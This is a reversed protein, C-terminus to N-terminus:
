LHFWTIVLYPTDVPGLDSHLMRTALLVPYGIGVMTGVGDGAEHEVEDALNSLGTPECVPRLPQPDPLQDVKQAPVAVREASGSGHHHVGCIPHVTNEHRDEGITLLNHERMLKPEAMYDRMIRPDLVAPRVEKKGTDPNVSHRKLRYITFCGSLVLVNAYFSEFSKLLCHTLFYEFVQIMTIYSQTRNEVKTEGCVGSLKPDKELARRGECQMRSAQTLQVDRCVDPLQISNEEKKPIWLAPQHGSNISELPTSPMSDNGSYYSAVSYGNGPGAGWLSLGQIHASTQAIETNCSSGSHSYEFSGDAFSDGDEMAIEELMEDLFFGNAERFFNYVVLQSDRKSRNGPKAAERESELGVKVVLLYKIKRDPEGEPSYYGTYVCAKNLRQDGHGVSQYILPEAETECKFVDEILIRPTSKDNGAGTVDGDAVVFLLKSEDDYESQVVSNVTKLIVEKSESYCPIHLALLKKPKEAPDAPLKYKGVTRQVVIAAIINMLMVGVACAMFIIYVVDLFMCYPLKVTLIGTPADSGSCIVFPLVFLLVIMVLVLFIMARFYRIKERWAERKEKTDLGFPKLLSKIFLIDIVSNIAVWVKQAKPSTIPKDLPPLQYKEDWEVYEDIQGEGLADSLKEALGKTTSM